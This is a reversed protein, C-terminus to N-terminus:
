RPHRLARGLRVLSRKCLEPAATVRLTRVEVRIPAHALAVVRVGDHRGPYVLVAREVGLATCYALVQYLDSTVLTAWPLRKWKADVVLVNRGSEAITVDPRVTVDPQGASLQTISYAAQVAVICLTSAFAETVGRTVYREFVREMDLLFAPGGRDGATHSPALGAVLLRCLDLLPSYGQPARELAPVALALGLPVARVGDFGRLAQRLTTRVNESVLPCLLIQEATARLVQNCPVDVTLDEPRSHLRDKRAPTERLQAPLDLSGQLFRGEEPREAYDRHLGAASREALQQALLGALFDLVECAPEPSSSDAVFPPPASPDLLFFLNRLPIKPRIVVRCGPTLLVGVHGTPTLLYRHRRGTPTLELHARHEALLFEVDAPALRCLRPVREVLTLRRVPSGTHM